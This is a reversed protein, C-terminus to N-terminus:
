ILPGTEKSTSVQYISIPRQDLKQGLIKKAIHVYEWEERKLLFVDSNKPKKSLFKVWNCLVDM